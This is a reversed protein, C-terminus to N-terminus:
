RAHTPLGAVRDASSCGCELAIEPFDRVYTSGRFIDAGPSTRSLADAALIVAAGTWTSQEAPWRADDAYVYGTWYSGDPDRLHQMDAVLRIAADRRGLADLALALECTEAGTVWPHDDVCHIGLGPVVFDDWRAELRRESPKGRLAGGLVPYYWDM